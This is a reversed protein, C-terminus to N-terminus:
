ASISAYAAQLLAPDPGEWIVPNQMGQLVVFRLLSGRAKKDIQMAALLRDWRGDPYTVPLGLQVLVDRHREVDASSLRGGLHALEAVYMMGVSIAAGHRWQYNEVREIAHGFTHGYNLAARGVVDGTATEKFDASVVEAKVQVARRILDPLLEGAPDTAEAPRGEVDLLISADHTFGVKVVEAFGALLDNRPLTELANVDCLVGSPSHFAGVLNKGAQTNIGTKGGVAADVMALLTTPIHVVRIGRLWTAAAFGALDTTAGGGLSVIVDSRTFGSSGLASWVFAAVEATKAEEGAPVEIMVVAFGSDTLDARIAEASASLAASHVLGVKQAGTCLAPLEGLLGRGIIVRYDHEAHVTIAFTDAGDTV